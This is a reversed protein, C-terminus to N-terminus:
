RLIELFAEIRTELQPVDEMSYDTELRLFPRGDKRASKELGHSEMLYPTCFQIAYHIVGDARTRAAMEEVHRARDPNPTFVACDIQFYRSAIRDLIESRDSRDIGSLDVQNRTGREGVCSEEGVIVAGNKEVLFPIKWNPIAMPCGSVLVRPAGAPAVGV